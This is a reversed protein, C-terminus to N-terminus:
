LLTYEPNKGGRILPVFAFGPFKKEDWEDASKKELIVIAGNVPAVIKRGLECLSPIREIGFDKGSDGAIDALLATTWGSGSGVDLIKEGAAPDLKELMFAVTEPQSITQGEGIPLPHNEYAEDKYEPLVFAARDVARFAEIIRPTKLIKREILYDILEKSSKM